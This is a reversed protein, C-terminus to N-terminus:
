EKDAAGADAATGEEADGGTQSAPKTRRGGAETSARRGGVSGRRMGARAAASLAHDLPPAVRARGRAAYAAAADARKIEIGTSGEKAVELATRVIGSKGLKTKKVLSRQVDIGLGKELYGDISRLKEKLARAEKEGDGDKKAANVKIQQFTGGADVIIAASNKTAGWKRPARGLVSGVGASVKIGGGGSTLKAVLMAKERPGMAAVDEASPLTVGEPLGSDQEPDKAAELLQDLLKSVREAEKNLKVNYMVIPNIFLDPHDDLGPSADFSLYDKELQTMDETDNKGKEEDEAEDNEYAEMESAGLMKALAAAAAAAGAAMKAASAMAAKRRGLGYGIVLGVFLGVFLFMIAVGM